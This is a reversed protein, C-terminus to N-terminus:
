PRSDGSTSADPEIAALGDRWLILADEEPSAYYNRRVGAESFGLAAYLRRAAENSRRVELTAKEAGKQVADDLVHTLLQSAVGQRRWRPHVALTNIHLEDFIIWVACYAVIM